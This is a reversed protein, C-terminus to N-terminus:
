RRLRRVVGRRGLERVFGERRRHQSAHVYDDGLEARSGFMGSSTFIRDLRDKLAAKADAVGAELQERTAADLAGADFPKGPLSGSEECFRALMGREAPYPPQAFQLLFNLYAIFGFGVVGENQRVAPFAIPPVTAREPQGIFASLPQLRLQSQLAKVNPVDGPGNLATRTLTGIIDTEARFVQTIGPPPTGEWRPGAFIFHGADFGTARVGVYAFNHTFLDFWQCFTIGSGEAGRSREAGRNPRLDLWPGRTRRTTTPPSSTRTIPPFPEAYHRYTGFAYITKWTDVMPVGFIYATKAIAKRESLSVESM